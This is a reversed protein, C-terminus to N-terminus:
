VGAARADDGGREGRVILRVWGCRQLGGPPLTDPGRKKAGGTTRYGFLRWEWVGVGIAVFVERGPGHERHLERAVQNSPVAQGCASYLGIHERRRAIHSM